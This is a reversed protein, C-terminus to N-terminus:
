VPGGGAQFVIEAVLDATRGTATYPLHSGLAAKVGDYAARMAERREPQTLLAGLAGAIPEARCADGVLEPIAERDLIINPMAFYPVRKRIGTIQAQWHMVRPGEYVMVQPVGAVAAELTSTGSKVIAADCASLLAATQGELIPIWDPLVGRLRRAGGPPAAAAFKAGHRERLLQAALAVHPGIYKVELARSGALLAVLQDEPGCGLEGRLQERIGPETASELLPHGVWVANAGAANLRDASWPFPTAITRCFPIIDLGGRGQKQWSAPPFYYLVPINLERLYPLLRRNFGGWDCLVACAPRPRGLHHKLGRQLMWQRPYTMLAPGLGIVGMGTSNGVMDAGSEALHPGGVAEITWGPHRRLLERVLRACNLDGSLDGACVFVRPAVGFTVLAPPL